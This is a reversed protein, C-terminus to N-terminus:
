IRGASYVADSTSIVVIIPWSAGRRRVTFIYSNNFNHFQSAGSSLPRGATYLFDRSAVRRDQRQKTLVKIWNQALCRQLNM